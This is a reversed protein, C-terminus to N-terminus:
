RPTPQEEPPPPITRDGLPLELEAPDLRARTASWYRRALELYRDKPWHVLVRFIDRLYTEPDLRHLRCSAILSFLNAAAEAHDDSGVFLWAKRGVAIRRLERESANNDLRLRGDDVVRRLADKQRVVYGFASRLLGRRDKVLQYQAAAWDLLGDIEPASVRRRLEQRKAPPLGSWKREFEFIRHIKFLAERATADKAMAAEYFKRRAHAWCGVETPGAGDDDDDGGKPERFLIDYVSKADAQVYGSFGRFMSAVADSTERPTYEFFVHDKDALMVFFHGRRCPSRGKKDTPEPQVAVGTADTAICFASKMAEDRMALVISGVTMGCDELWRSMTGRDLALDEAAFRDEQRFLPLGYGFKDTAIKALLSPAALCRAFTRKPMPATAVTPTGEATKTKYKARAIVIKVPGGKRYALQYSEEFGIREAKGELEADLFEHREEMMPIVALNRRGKPKPKPLPEDGLVPMEPAGILDDGFVSRALADLEKKKEYFELELQAVDVREAKAVFIRRRMLELELQLERFASRLRDREARATAADTRAVEVDVRARALAAELEAVRARLEDATSETTRESPV